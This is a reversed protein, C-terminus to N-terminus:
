CRSRDMPTVRHLGTEEDWQHENGEQECEPQRHMDVAACSRRARQSELGVRRCSGRVDHNVVRRDRLRRRTAVARLHVTPSRKPGPRVRNCRTRGAARRVFRIGVATAATARAAIAAASRTLSILPGVRLASSTTRTRETSSLGLGRLVVRERSRQRSSGPRRRSRIWRGMWAARGTTRRVVARVTWGKAPPTSGVGETV